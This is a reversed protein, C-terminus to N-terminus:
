RTLYFFSRNDLTLRTSTGAGFVPVATLGGVGGVGSVHEIRLHKIARYEGNVDINVDAEFM